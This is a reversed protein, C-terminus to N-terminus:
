SSTLGGDNALFDGNATIEQIDIKRLEPAIWEKRTEAASGAHNETAVRTEVAREVQNEM